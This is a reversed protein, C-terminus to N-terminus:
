IDFGDIKSGLYLSGFLAVLDAAVLWPHAMALEPGWLMYFLLGVACVFVIKLLYGLFNM